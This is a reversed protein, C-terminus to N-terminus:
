FHKKLFIKAETHGHRAAMDIWKYARKRDQKVGKGWYLLKGIAFRADDVGRKSANKYHYVAKELDMPVGLGTEYLRGLRFEAKPSWLKVAKEYLKRAKEYKGQKEFIVGLDYGFFTSRIRSDMYWYYGEEYRKSKIFLKTLYSVAERKGIQRAYEYWYIAKTVNQEVGVGHEFMMALTFIKEKHLNMETDVLDIRSTGDCSIFAEEYKQFGEVLTITVLLTFVVMVSRM